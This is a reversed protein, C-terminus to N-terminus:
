SKLISQISKFWEKEEFRKRQKDGPKGTRQDILGAVLRKYQTKITSNILRGAHTGLEGPLKAPPISNIARMMADATAKDADVPTKDIMTMRGYGSSTKAGVGEAELAKELIQFAVDRWAECGEPAALAILYIGTASIFPVLSPDDWDAPPLIHGQNNREEKYYSPHHVTMVDFWLAKAENTGHIKCGSGPVYLADFFTVYGAEDTTGFVTQHFPKGQQWADGCYHRAFAAALGKLASGPIYPVGYTHHLAVSTELVGESGLGIAMRNKVEARRCVAGFTNELSDKWKDYIAVYDKPEYISAVQRALISHSEKDSKALTTIFKDMWLGANPREEVNLDIASLADRRSSM